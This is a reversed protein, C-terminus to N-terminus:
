IPAAGHATNRTGDVTYQTSHVAACRMGRQTGWETDCDAGHQPM